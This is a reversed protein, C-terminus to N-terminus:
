THFSYKYKLIFRDVQSKVVSYVEEIARVAASIDISKVADEHAHEMESRVSPSETFAVFIKMVPVDANQLTKSMTDLKQFANDRLKVLAEPLNVSIELSSALDKVRDISKHFMLKSVVLAKDLVHKSTQQLVKFDM